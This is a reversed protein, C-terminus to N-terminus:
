VGQEYFLLAEQQLSKDTKLREYSKIILTACKPKQYMLNIVYEQFEIKTKLFCYEIPDHEERVKKFIQFYKNRLLIYSPVETPKILQM